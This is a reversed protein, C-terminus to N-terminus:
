PKPSDSARYCVPVFKCIKTAGTASYRSVEHSPLGDATEGSRYEFYTTGDFRFIRVDDDDGGIGELTKRNFASNQAPNGDAGLKIAWTTHFEHGCGAGSDEDHTVMGVSDLKGDNDIDIRGRGVM